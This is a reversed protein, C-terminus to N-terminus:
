APFSSHMLCSLRAHLRRQQLMYVERMQPDEEAPISNPDAVLPAFPDIKNGKKPEAISCLGSCLDAFDATLGGGLTAIFCCHLPAPCGCLCVKGQWGTRSLGARPDGLQKMTAPSAGAARASRRMEDRLQRNRRRVEKAEAEEASMQPALHVVYLSQAVALDM